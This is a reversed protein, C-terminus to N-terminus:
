IYNKFLKIKLGKFCNVNHCLFLNILKNLDISVLDAGLEDLSDTLAQEIGVVTNCSTNESVQLAGGCQEDDRDQQTAITDVAEHQTLRTKTNSLQECATAATDPSDDVPEADAVLCSLVVCLLNQRLDLKANIILEPVCVTM